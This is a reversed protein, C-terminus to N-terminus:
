PRNHLQLEKLRKNAWYDSPNLKYVVLLAQKEEEVRGLQNYIHAVLRACNLKFFPDSDPPAMEYAARAPALAEDYRQLKYLILALMFQLRASRPNRAIGEKVFSIAEEHLGHRHLDWAGTDYAEVFHPDLYTILRYLPFLDEDTQHKAQMIHYYTDMKFWLSTALFTRVEGLVELAVEVSSLQKLDPKRYGPRHLPLFVNVGILTIVLGIALLLRTESPRRRM